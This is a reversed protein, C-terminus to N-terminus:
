TGPVTGEGREIWARHAPDPLLEAFRADYAAVAADSFSARWTGAQGGAFFAGDDKFMGTGAEPTFQAPNAKMAGFSTAAQVEALFEPAHETGLHADIRTVAGLHDRLMAAYSLNLHDPLRDSLVAQEFHQVIRAVGDRDDNEEGDLDALWHNMGGDPAVLLDHDAGGVYNQMHKKLSLMVELPHRFVAITKVGDWVPVGEAPTHTKIVRRGPQAAVRAATEARDFFNADFWPSLHTVPAPLDTTGHLLMAVMTQTWTTGSKAPTLVLVDGVRPQFDEWREPETIGGRYARVPPHLLRAPTM